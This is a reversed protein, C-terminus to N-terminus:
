EMLDRVSFKVDTEKFDRLLRVANSVESAARLSSPTVSLVPSASPQSDTRIAAPMQEPVQGHASMAVGFSLIAIVLHRPTVNMGPFDRSEKEYRHRSLSAFVPQGCHFYRANFAFPLWGVRIESVPLHDFDCPATSTRAPADLPRWSDDSQIHRLM